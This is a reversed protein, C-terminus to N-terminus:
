GAREIKYLLLGTRQDPKHMSAALVYNGADLKFDLCDKNVEESLYASDFITYTAGNSVFPVEEDFNAANFIDISVHSFSWEPDAYEAQALYVCSASAGIIAIEFPMTILLAEGHMGVLKAINCPPHSVGDTLDGAAEYDDSFPSSALSFTKRENAGWFRASDRDIIIYPGGASTIGKM